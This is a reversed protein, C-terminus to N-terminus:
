SMLNTIGAVLKLLLGCRKLDLKNKQRRRNCANYKQHFSNKDKFKAIPYIVSLSITYYLYMYNRQKKKM